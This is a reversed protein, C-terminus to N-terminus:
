RRYRRWSFAIGAAAAAVVVVLLAVLGRGTFMAESPFTVVLWLVAFTILLLLVVARHSM